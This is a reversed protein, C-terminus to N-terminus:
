VRALRATTRCSRLAARHVLSVVQQHLPTCMWVFEGLQVHVVGGSVTQLRFRDGPAHVVEEVKLRPAGGVFWATIREGLCGQPARLHATLMARLLLLQAHTCAHQAAALMNSCLVVGVRM